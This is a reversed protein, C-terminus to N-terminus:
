CSFSPMVPKPIHCDEGFPDLTGWPEEPHQICWSGIRAEFLVTKRVLATANEDGPAARKLAEAAVGALSYTVPLNIRKEM